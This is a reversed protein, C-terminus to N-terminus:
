NTAAMLGMKEACKTCEDGELTLVTRASGHVGIIRVGCLTTTGTGMQGAFQASLHPKYYRRMKFKWFIPRSAARKHM